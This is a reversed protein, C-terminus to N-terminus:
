INRVILSVLSLCSVEEPTWKKITRKPGNDDKISDSDLNDQFNNMNM